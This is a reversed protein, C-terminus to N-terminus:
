QLAEWTDQEPGTIDGIVRFTGKMCGFISAPREAEMPVLRAVARGRKTIVLGNRTRDVRDLIKLLHTKAESASVTQQAVQSAQSPKAGAKTRSSM